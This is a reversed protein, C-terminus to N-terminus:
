RYSLMIEAVERSVRRPSDSNKYESWCEAIFEHIDKAAYGSVEKRVDETDYLSKIRKNEYLCYSYEIVHGIEHDIIAQVGKKRLGKSMYGTKCWSDFDERVKEAKYMQRTNIFIGSYAKMVNWIKNRFGRYFVFMCRAYGSMRRVCRSIRKKIEQKIEEDSLGEKNRLVNKEIIPYLAKKIDRNIAQGNGVARILRKAKHFENFANIIRKNCTNAIELDLGEYYANVKIEAMYAEAESITKAEKYEIIKRRMNKRDGKNFIPASTRNGGPFLTEESM